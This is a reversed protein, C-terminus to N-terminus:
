GVVHTRAKVWSRLRYEHLAVLRARLAREDAHSLRLPEDETVGEFGTPIVTVFPPYAAQEGTM